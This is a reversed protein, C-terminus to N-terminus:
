ILNTQNSPTPSSPSSPTTTSLNHSLDEEFKMTTTPTENASTTTISPMTTETTPSPLSTPLPTTTTTSNSATSLTEPIETTSSPPLSSLKTPSPSSLETTTAESTTATTSTLEEMMSQNTNTANFIDLRTTMTTNADIDKSITTLNTQEEVKKEDDVRVFAVRKPNNNNSDEVIESVNITKRSVRYGGWGITQEVFSKMEFINSFILPHRRYIVFNRQGDHEFVEAAALSHCGHQHSLFGALYWKSLSNLCNLARFNEFCQNRTSHIPTTSIYDNASYSSGLGCLHNDTLHGAYHETSNCVHMDIIEYSTDVPRGQQHDDPHVFCTIAADVKAEPLCIGFTKAMSENIMNKMKMLALDNDPYRITRFISYRPHLRVSEISITQTEGGVVVVVALRDFNDKSYNTLNRLCMGSTVLWRSTIPYAFCSVTQPFATTANGAPSTLVIKMPQPPSSEPLTNTPIPQNSTTDTSRSQSCIVAACEVAVTRNSACTHVHEIRGDNTFHAWTGNALMRSIAILSYNSAKDFGLEQCLEDASTQGFDEPSCYLSWNQQQGNFIHVINTSKETEVIPFLQILNHFFTFVRCSVAVHRTMLTVVIMTDMVGVDSMSASAARAGTGDRPLHVITAPQQTSSMCKSTLHKIIDVFSVVVLSMPVMSVITAVTAFLRVILAFAVPVFSDIQKRM